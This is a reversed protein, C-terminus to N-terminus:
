EGPRPVSLREQGRPVPEAGTVAQRIAALDGSLEDLRREIGEMRRGLDGAAPASGVGEAIREVSDEVQELRQSVSRMRRTLRELEAATPLNMASMASEHMQVARDRLGFVRQLAENFVENELLEDAVRGIADEGGKSIRDRIGDGEGSAAVDGSAGVDFTEDGAM